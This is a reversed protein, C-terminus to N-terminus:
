PCLFVSHPLGITRLLLLFHELPVGAQGSQEEGGDWWTGGAGVAVLNSKNCPAVHRTGWHSCASAAVEGAEEQLQNGWISLGCSCSTKWLKQVWSRTVGLGEAGNEVGKRVSHKAAKALGTQNDLWHLLLQWCPARSERGLQLHWNRAWGVSIFIDVKWCTSNGM